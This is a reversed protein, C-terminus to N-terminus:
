FIFDPNGLNSVSIGAITLIGSGGIMSFDIEVGGTVDTVAGSGNLDGWNTLNFAQLDIVDKNNTFDTITDNGASRKFVIVDNGGGTTIEDDGKGGDLTDSGGDGFLSDDGADGRLSDLGTGGHLEDNGGRGILTDNDADGYFTEGAAGGRIADDGDDGYIRGSVSGYRGNYIDDGGNFDIDGHMVGLNDIRDSSDIGLSGIFAYSQGTITGTNVVKLLAESDYNAVIATQTGAITGTNNINSTLANNDVWVGFVGAISGSNFLSLSSTFDTGVFRVGTGTSQVIGANWIETTYSTLANIGYSGTSLINGSAGINLELDTGTSTVGVGESSVTGNIILDNNGSATIASSGGVNLLAGNQGLILADNNSLSQATTVTSNIIVDAM